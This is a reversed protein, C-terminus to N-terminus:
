AHVVLEALEAIFPHAAVGAVFVGLLVVLREDLRPASRVELDTEAREAFAARPAHRASVTVAAGPRSSAAVRRADGFISDSVWGTRDCQPCEIDDFRGRGECLPCCM